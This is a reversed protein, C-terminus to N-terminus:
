ANQDISYQQINMLVCDVFLSEVVLMERTSSVKLAM